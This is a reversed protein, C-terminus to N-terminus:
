RGSLVASYPNGDQRPLYERMRSYKPEMAVIECSTPTIEYTTEFDEHTGARWLRGEPDVVISFGIGGVFIRSGDTGTRVSCTWPRLGSDPATTLAIIEGTLGELLAPREGPPVELTRRIAQHLMREGTSDLGEPCPRASPM